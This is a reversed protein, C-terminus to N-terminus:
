ARSRSTRVERLVDEPALVDVGEVPIGRRQRVILMKRATAFRAAREAFGKVDHRSYKGWKVEGIIVPKNRSTIIFDFERDPLVLYEKRGGYLQAFLDGLFNEVALNRLKELTPKVEGFEPQRVRLDYRDELYYFAEVVASALRYRKKKSGFLPLEEILGMEVLNRIYPLVHSSDAGGTLGRGALTRAIERPDWEGAGILRLIAEYTRTLSREEEAFIEGVLATITFPSHVIISYLSALFDGSEVFPILWPDRLYCGLEIAEAASHGKALESVINTPSVLGLRYQLLLGLLPSQRTFVKRIVRLSSGSLILKGGPHVSSIEDCFYSPLRQFEDIAICKGQRLADKALPIFERLSPIESLPYKEALIRGDRRVLFYHDHPLFNKILFTKGVKRRGYLLLWGKLRRIEDAEDRM